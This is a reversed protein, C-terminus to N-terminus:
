EQYEGFIGAYGCKGSHTTNLQCGEVLLLQRTEIYLAQALKSNTKIMLELASAVAGNEINRHQNIHTCTPTHTYLHTHTDTYRDPQSYFFTQEPNREVQETDRNNTFKARNLARM